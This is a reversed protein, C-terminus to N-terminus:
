VHEQRGARDLPGATRMALLPWLTRSYFLPIYIYLIYIYQLSGVPIVFDLRHEEM